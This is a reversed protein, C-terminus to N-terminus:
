AELMRPVPMVRKERGTALELVNQYYFKLLNRQLQVCPMKSCVIMVRPVYVLTTNPDLILPNNIM